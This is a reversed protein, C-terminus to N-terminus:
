KRTQRNTQKYTQKDTRRDTRESAFYDIIEFIIKFVNFCTVDQRARKYAGVECTNTETNCFTGMEPCDEVAECWDGLGGVRPYSLM